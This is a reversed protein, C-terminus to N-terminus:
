DELAAEAADVLEEVREPWDEELVRFPREARRLLAASLYWRLGEPRAGYGALLSGLV